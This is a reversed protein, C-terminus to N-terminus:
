EADHATVSRLSLANADAAASGAVHNGVYSSVNRVTPDEGYELRWSDPDVDVSITIQIRM